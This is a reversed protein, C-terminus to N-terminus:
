VRLKVKGDLRRLIARGKQGVVKLKGMGAVIARGMAM